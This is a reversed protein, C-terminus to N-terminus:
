LDPRYELRRDSRSVTAFVYAASLVALSNRPVQTKTIKKYTLSVSRISRTPGPAPAPAAPPPPPSASRSPGRVKKASHPGQIASSANAAADAAPKRHRKQRKQTVAFYLRDAGPAIPRRMYPDCRALCLRPLAPLMSHSPFSLCSFIPLSSPPVPRSRACLEEVTPGDMVPVPAADGPRPGRNLLRFLQQKSCLTGLCKGETKSRKERRGGGAGASATRGGREGLSLRGGLARLAAM